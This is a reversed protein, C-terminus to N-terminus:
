LIYRTGTKLKPIIEKKHISFEPNKDDRHLHKNSTVTFLSSDSLVLISNWFLVSFLTLRVEACERV